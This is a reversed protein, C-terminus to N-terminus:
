LIKKTQQVIVFNSFFLVEVLEKDLYKLEEREMQLLAKEKQRQMEKQDKM